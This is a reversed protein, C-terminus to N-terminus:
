KKMPGGVLSFQGGCGAWDLKTEAIWKSVLVEPEKVEDIDRGVGLQANANFGWGIAKGETTLALNHDPGCAVNVFKPSGEVAVKRPQLLIKPKGAENKRM